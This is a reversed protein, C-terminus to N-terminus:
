PHMQCDLHMKTCQTANKFADSHMLLCRFAHSHKSRRICQLAHHTDLMCVHGFSHSHMNFTDAYFSATTLHVTFASPDKFAVALRFAVKTSHLYYAYSHFAYLICNFDFACCHQQICVTCHLAFACALIRQSHLFFASHLLHQIGNLAAFPM